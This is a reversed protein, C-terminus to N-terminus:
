VTRLKEIERVVDLIGKLPIKIWSPRNSIEFGLENIAKELLHFQLLYNVENNNKLLTHHPGFYTLYEELFTDRMLKYWRDSARLLDKEPIMQTQESNYLKASVAYHYSRIMSAVDKLPSHKTIRKSIPTNPEGEFDIMHIGKANILIQRLHFDGHIRIRLSNFVRTLIQDIFNLIKDKAEMFQWALAQTQEDLDMYMDILTDYRKDLAEELKRHIETRYSRNIQEPRFAEEAGPDFLADHMVATRKGLQAVKVFVQEKVQFNGDVLGIIFDNLYDGTLSWNDKSDAIYETMVGFTYLPTNEETLNISGCYKPYNSFKEKRSFFRLSEIEPNIGQYLNRYLKFFYKNNYVFATNNGDIDIFCSETETEDELGKGREFELVQENKQRTSASSLLSKFIALRFAPDYVADVLFGEKEDLSARSIFANEPIDSTEEGVFSVPFLYSEPEGSSYRIQLYTFFFETDGCKMRVAGTIKIRWNKRNRGAFWSCKELYNPLLNDELVTHVYKDKEFGEWDLLLVFPSMEYIM